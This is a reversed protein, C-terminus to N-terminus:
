WRLPTVKPWTNEINFLLTEFASLSLLGVAKTTSAPKSKATGEKATEIPPANARKARYYAQRLRAERARDGRARADESNEVKPGLRWQGKVGRTRALLKFIERESDGVREVLADVRKVYIQKWSKNQPSKINKEGPTWMHVLRGVNHDIAALGLFADRWFLPSRPDLGMAQTLQDIQRAQLRKHARTVAEDLTTRKGTTGAEKALAEADALLQRTDYPNFNPLAQRQAAIHADDPVLAQRARARKPM